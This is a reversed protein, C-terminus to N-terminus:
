NDMIYKHIIIGANGKKINNESQYDNSCKEINRIFNDLTCIHSGETAWFPEEEDNYLYELIQEIKKREESTEIEMGSYKKVRM